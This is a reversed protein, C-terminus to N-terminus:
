QANNEPTQDAGTIFGWIGPKKAAEEAAKQTYRALEREIEGMAVLKQRLEAVEVELSMSKQQEAALVERAEEAAREAEAVASTACDLQRRMISIELSVAEKAAAAERRASELDSQSSRANTTTATTANSISADSVERRGLSKQSGPAAAATGGGSSLGGGGAGGGSGPKVVVFGEPRYVHVANHYKGNYGGFSVMCGAMPVTLLSLGESAIAADAPTNGVLVWQLVPGDEGTTTGVGQGLNSLDLAYMDACGRTNNGGGVIYLTTGLVAAAHGARPPPVPGEASPCSWEMTQTDLVLLDNFCNAVSGGGFIIIYRNRFSCSTHQSRAKPANSGDSTTTEPQSWELTSLDLVWLENLPKRTADEGGFVYVKNGIVTASHGGRPRPHVDSTCTPTLTSWADSQTDLLRVPMEVEDKAKTHGGICVVNGNWPVTAHGAVPPLPLPSTLQGGEQDLTAAGTLKGTSICNWSLNELNLAWTDALYRGGCNGGVVYLYNGILAMSQEYRPPPRRDSAIYPSVWSGEVVVEAVSRSKISSVPNVSSKSTHLATTTAAPATTSSPINSNQSDSGGGGNTTATTTNSSYDGNSESAAAEMATAVEPGWWEPLEEELTRVYLRMAEMSPMDGLQKWSQWKANSVVNWGWPRPEDCPGINAQQQLAYLLLKSEEPLDSDNLVKTVCTVAAQFKQPYPLPCGHSASM